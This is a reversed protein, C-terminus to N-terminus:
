LTMFPSHEALLLKRLSTRIRSLIRRHSSTHASMAGGIATLYASNRVKLLTRV